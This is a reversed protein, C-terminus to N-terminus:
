YLIQGSNSPKVKNILEVKIEPIIEKTIDSWFLTSLMLNLDVDSANVTRLWEQIIHSNAAPVDWGPSVSHLLVLIIVKWETPKFMVTHRSFRFTRALSMIRPLVEDINLGLEAAVGSLNRKLQQVFITMQLQSHASSHVPPLMVRGGGGDREKEEALRGEREGSSSSETGGVSIGSEEDCKRKGDREVPSEFSPQNGVSTPAEKQVNQHEASEERLRKVLRRTDPTCWSPM